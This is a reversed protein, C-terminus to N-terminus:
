RLLRKSYMALCPEFGRPIVNKFTEVHDQLTERHRNYTDTFAGRSVGYKSSVDEYFSQLDKKRFAENEGFYVFFDTDVNVANDEADRFYHAHQRDKYDSIGLNHMASLISPSPPQGPALFERLVYMTRSESDADLLAYDPHIRPTSLGKNAVDLAAVLNPEPLLSPEDNVEDGHLIASYNDASLDLHDVHNASHALRVPASEENYQTMRRMVYQRGEDNALFVINPAHSKTGAEKAPLVRYTEVTDGHVRFTIDGVERRAINQRIRMQKGLHKHDIRPDDAMRRLTSSGINYTADFVEEPTLAHNRRKIEVADIRQELSMEDNQKTM